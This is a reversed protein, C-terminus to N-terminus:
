KTHGEGPRASTPATKEVAESIVHSKVYFHDVEKTVTVIPSPLPPLVEEEHLVAENFRERTAPLCPDTDESPRAIMRSLLLM